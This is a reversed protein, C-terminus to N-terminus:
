QRWSPRLQQTIQVFDCCKWILLSSISHHGVYCGNDGAENHTQALVAGLGQMSADTELVFDQNIMPYVLVPTLPLKRNLKEYASQCVPSWM